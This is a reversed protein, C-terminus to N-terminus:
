LGGAGDLKSSAGAAAMGDVSLAAAVAVVSDVLRMKM